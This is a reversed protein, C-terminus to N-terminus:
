RAAPLVAGKYHEAIFNQIEESQLAKVLAVLEPREEDGARVAVVNAYPSDGGEVALADNAPNLGAELAYNGNIVAADVDVLVRPLQAAELAKFKYGKPNGTIDLETAELGAAPDLTILGRAQLLLLARGGNTPDGPIAIQAGDPLEDLKAFKKSYLGMPEVHIVGISTLKLGRDKSFSELYPVHQFFNADLNGEALALNPTVYDTFELVKLDIGQDKLLPVVRALIEGHPAPSAGVSIESASLPLAVSLSLLCAALLSKKM